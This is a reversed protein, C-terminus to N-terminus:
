SEGVSHTKAWAALLEDRHARVLALATAIEPKKMGKIGRVLDQEIVVIAEV